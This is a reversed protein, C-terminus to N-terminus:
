RILPCEYVANVMKPRKKARQCFSDLCKLHGIDTNSSRFTNKSFCYNCGIKKTLDTQKTFHYKSM